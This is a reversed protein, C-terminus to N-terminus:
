SRFITLVLYILGGCITLGLTFSECAVRVRPRKKVAGKALGAVIYGGLLIWLGDNLGLYILWFSWAVGLLLGPVDLPRTAASLPDRAREEAAAAVLTATARQLLEISFDRWAADLPDRVDRWRWRELLSPTQPMLGRWLELAGIAGVRRSPALHRARELARKAAGTLRIQPTATIGDSVITARVAAALADLDVSAEHASAQRLRSAFADRDELLGLLLHATSVRGCGSTRAISQAANLAARAQADLMKLPNGGPRAARRIQRLQNRMARPALGLSRLVEGTPTNQGALVILLHADRYEMADLVADGIRFYTLPDREMGAKMAQSLAKIIADQVRPKLVVDAGVVPLAEILAELYLRAEDRKIGSRLLLQGAHSDADSEILALALHAVTVLGNRREIAIRVARQLSAYAAVTAPSASM